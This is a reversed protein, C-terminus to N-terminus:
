LNAIIQNCYEHIANIKNNDYDLLELKSDIYNINLGIFNLVRNELVIYKYYTTDYKIILEEISHINSDEYGLRYKIKQCETKNFNDELGNLVFDDLEFALKYITDRIEKDVEFDINDINKKVGDNTNDIKKLRNIILLSVIIDYLMEQTIDILGSLSEQLNSILMESEFNNGRELNCKKCLVRVNSEESSGGKSWPIIHDFHIDKDLLPKACIQCLSNDRRNVRLQVNRPIKRSINRLERTETFPEAIKYVPCIHGYIKCLKSKEKARPFEEVLVGYPCYKLEWCPKCVAKVRKDWDIKKAWKDM